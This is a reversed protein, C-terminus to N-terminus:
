SEQYTPMTLDDPESMTVVRTWRGRAGNGSTHFSHLSTLVQLAFFTCLGFRIRWPGVLCSCTLTVTETFSYVAPGPLVQQYMYQSSETSIAVHYLSGNGAGPGSCVILINSYHM